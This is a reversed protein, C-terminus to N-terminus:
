SHLWDAFWLAVSLFVRLYLNNKYLEKTNRERKM